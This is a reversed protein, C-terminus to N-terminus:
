MKIRKWEPKPKWSFLLPFNAKRRIKQESYFFIKKDQHTQQIVIFFFFSFEELEDVFVVLFPKFEGLPLHNAHAWIQPELSGSIM